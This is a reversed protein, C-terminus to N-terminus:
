ETFELVGFKEPEHFGGTLTPSWALFAKNARDCRYLNIRWRAGAAPKTESLSQLPIRMECTWTHAKADVKTRTQFHSSWAFDREPLSLTLDLKENTPAVEYETYHKLNQADGGIFAEVVDRDWLNVNRETASLRERDLQAPEFVTLETYPCEYGLYLYQDSWLLRVATAVEPRATSDRTEYEMRAPQAKQWAPHSVSGDLEFDAGLRAAREDAWALGAAVADESRGQRRM